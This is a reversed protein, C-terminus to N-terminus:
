SREGNQMRDREAGCDVKHRRWNPTRSRRGTCGAHRDPFLAYFAASRLPACRERVVAQAGGSPSGRNSAPTAACPPPLPRRHSPIPNGAPSPRHTVATIFPFAGHPPSSAVLPSSRVKRCCSPKMRPPFGNHKSCLCQRPSLLSM